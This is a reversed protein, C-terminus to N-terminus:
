FAFGPQPEFGALLPPTSDFVTRRGADGEGGLYVVARGVPGTREVVGLRGNPALAAIWSRPARDVAGECIILDYGGNAVTKLDEGDIRDVILGMRELVLAAYPAAIALAKEGERPKLAQLLKGIDRPRLLWRGPAYEVEADAYALHAKDAPTVSERPADRLVDQLPLDTVDATRIQSEVMNLRALTFDSAM